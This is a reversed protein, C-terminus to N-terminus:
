RAGKGWLIVEATQLLIMLDFILSHNKVYYLDYQLKEAADQESAGYPYCLQAWGTLGPKVTHRERYYPIRQELEVVFEPREPRPGVFSMDGNLVNFLQPLEDLRTKRIVAGVRTVRPDRSTAWIAKGGTEADVRMSRFKLVRFHRGELGVRVQSYLVPARIGEELKIFLVVLLMFPWAVALLAITAVVDLARESFQRVPSRSFGPAFIIWSPNLVDLRVKGTEAELFDVLDTVAVGSLRCELLEHVPFSRRRDDMAVVIEDVEHERCYELLTGQLALIREQPVVLRDGQTAVYGLVTFGRRDHRRRLQTVSFARRGAGYLLVRRKFIEEDVISEFGYRVLVLLCFAIPAAALFVSRELALPPILYSALVFAASGFVLAALLRLLIGSFRARQRRSYLGMSLIALLHLVAFAVDPAVVRLGFAAADNLLRGLLPAALLCLTDLGALLVLPARVFHRLRVRAREPPATTASETAM